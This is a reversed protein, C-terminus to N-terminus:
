GSTMTECGKNTETYSGVNACNHYQLNRSQQSCSHNTVIHRGMLEARNLDIAVKIIAVSEMLKVVYNESKSMLLPDNVLM